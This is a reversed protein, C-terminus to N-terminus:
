GTFWGSNNDAVKSLWTLEANILLAQTLQSSLSIIFTHLLTIIHHSEDPELALQM